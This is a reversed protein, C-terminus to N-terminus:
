IIETETFYGLSVLIKKELGQQAKGEIKARQYTALIYKYDIHLYWGQATRMGSVLVFHYTPGKGHTLGM